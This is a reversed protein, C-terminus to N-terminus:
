FYLLLPFLAIFDKLSLRLSSIAKSMHFEVTKPSVNLKKSIDKYSLGHERNLIFIHRTKQPLKELTNQIIQRIEESFITEPDCAELTHIRINLLWEAHQSLEKEVRQKVKEHQLFNICKNKVITLIYARPNTEPLLENRKEWLSAFAESVFDEAVDAKRVYGTAFRICKPYYENFLKNFERMDSFTNM